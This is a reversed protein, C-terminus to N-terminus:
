HYKPKLDLPRRRVAALAGRRDVCPDLHRYQQQRAGIADTGLKASTIPGCSPKPPPTTERLVAGYEHLEYVAAQGALQLSVHAESERARVIACAGQAARESM